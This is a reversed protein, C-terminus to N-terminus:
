HLDDFELYEVVHTGSVVQTYGSKFADGADSHVHKDAVVIKGSQLRQRFITAAPESRECNM